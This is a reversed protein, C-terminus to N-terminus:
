RSRNTGNTRGRRMTQTLGGGVNGTGRTGPRHVAGLRRFASCSVLAPTLPAAWGRGWVRGQPPVSAARGGAWWAGASWAVRGGVQCGLTPPGTSAPHSTSADRAWPAPGAPAPPEAVCRRALQWSTGPGSLPRCHCVSSFGPCPLSGWGALGMCGPVKTSEKAPATHPALVAGSPWKKVDQGYGPPVLVQLWPPSPTLAPPGWHQSPVGLYLPFPVWPRVQGDIYAVEGRLVVRRVTGKVKM